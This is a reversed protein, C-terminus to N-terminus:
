QTMEILKESLEIAPSDTLGGFMVHTVKKLQLKAAKNLEPNNYGHITCWWSSMGDILVKGNTLKIKTGKCSSVYYCKLPKTLSTYPHWIHKQDFLLDDDITM